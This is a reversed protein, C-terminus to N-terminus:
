LGSIEEGQGKTFAEESYAFSAQEEKLIKIFVQKTYQKKEREHRKGVLDTRYM